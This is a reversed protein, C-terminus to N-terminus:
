YIGHEKRQSPKHNFMVNSDFHLVLQCSAHVYKWMKDNSMAKLILQMYTHVFIIVIGAITTNPRVLIILGHLLTHPFGSFHGLVIQLLVLSLGPKM